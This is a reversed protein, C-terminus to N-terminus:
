AYMIPLMWNNALLVTCEMVCNTTRKVHKYKRESPNQQQQGAESSWNGISYARIIDKVQGNIKVQASNSIINDM